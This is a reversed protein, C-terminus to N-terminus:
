SRWAFKGSGNKRPHRAEDEPMDKRLGGLAAFLAQLKETM